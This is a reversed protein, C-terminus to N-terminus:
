YSCTSTNAREPQMGQSHPEKWLRDVGQEEWVQPRDYSENLWAFFPQYEPRGMDEPWLRALQGAAEEALM